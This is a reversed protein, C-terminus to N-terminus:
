TWVGRLAVGAVAIVIAQVVVIIGLARLLALAGKCRADVSRGAKDIPLLRLASMAADFRAMDLAGRAAADALRAFLRADFVVRYGVWQAVVGIALAASWVAIALTGAIMAAITVGVAAVISLGTSLALLSRTARLADA